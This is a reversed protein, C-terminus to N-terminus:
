YSRTLCRITVLVGNPDPDMGSSLQADDSFEISINNAGCVAGM